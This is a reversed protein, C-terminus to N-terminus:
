QGNYFDGNRKLFLADFRPHQPLKAIIKPSSASLPFTKGLKRFILNALRVVLFSPLSVVMMWRRPVESMCQLVCWWNVGNWSSVPHRILQLFLPFIANGILSKTIANKHEKTLGDIAVVNKILTLLGPFWSSGDKFSNGIHAVHFAVEESVFLVPDDAAVRLMMDLDAVYHASSDFGGAAIFSSTRFLTGTSAPHQAHVMAVAGEGRQYRGFEMETPAYGYLIGSDDVIATRGFCMGLDADASLAGVAIELFEPLLLDDDSLICFYETNVREILSAWNGLMGINREHRVYRIRSDKAALDAVVKGTDDPSANDSIILQWDKFSQGIVTATARQLLSSRNYTPILVTVQPQIKRSDM